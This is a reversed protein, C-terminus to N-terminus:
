PYIGRIYLADAVRTIARILAGVRLRVKYEEATQWVKHFARM